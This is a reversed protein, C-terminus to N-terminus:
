YGTLMLDAIRQFHQTNRTVLPLQHHIATAAIWLDNDGIARGASRLHRSIQAAKWAIDRDLNLVTYRRLALWCDQEQESSYGEAFEAVSVISVNLPQNPHNELFHHAPGPSARKIERELHIVFTTDFLM